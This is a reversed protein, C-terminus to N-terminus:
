QCCPCLRRLREFAYIGTDHGDSWRVSIAYNGVPHLELARVDESVKDDQLVKRGSMEDVCEACACACRLYHGPFYSEHGDEWVIGIEGNPLLAVRAARPPQAPSM